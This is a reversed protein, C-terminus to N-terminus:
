CSKTSAEQPFVLKGKAGLFMADLQPTWIYVFKLSHSTGCPWLAMFHVLWGASLSAVTQESPFSVCIHISIILLIQNEDQCQTDIDQPLNKVWDNPTPCSAPKQDASHNIVYLSDQIKEWFCTKEKNRCIRNWKQCLLQIYKNMPDYITNGQMHVIYLM